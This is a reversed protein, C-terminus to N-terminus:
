SKAIEKRERVHSRIDGKKAAREGTDERSGVERATLAQQKRQRDTRRGM